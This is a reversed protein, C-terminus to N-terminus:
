ARDAYARSRRRTSARLWTSSTTSSRERRGRARQPARPPPGPYRRAPRSDARGRLVASRRRPVLGDDPRAPRADARGLGADGRRRAFGPRSPSPRRASGPRARRRAARTTPPRRASAVPRALADLRRHREPDRADARGASLVRPSPRRGARRPRTSRRALLARRPGAEAPRRPPLGLVISAAWRTATSCSRVSRRGGAPRACRPWGSRSTTTSSRGASSTAAGGAPAATAATTTAVLCRPRGGRVPRRRARLPRLARRPRPRAPGIGVAAPGRAAPRPRTRRGTGSSCTTGDAATAHSVISPMPPAYAARRRGGTPVMRWPHRRRSPRSRRDRRRAGSRTRRGSCRPPARAVACASTM